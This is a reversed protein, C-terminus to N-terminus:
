AKSRFSPPVIRGRRMAAVMAARMGHRLCVGQQECHAQFRLLTGLYRRYSTDYHERYQRPKRGKPM